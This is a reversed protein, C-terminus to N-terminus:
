DMSVLCRASNIIPKEPALGRRMKRNIPLPQNSVRTYSNALTEKGVAAAM